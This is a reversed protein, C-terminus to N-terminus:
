RSRQQRAVAALYRVAAIVDAKTGAPAGSLGPTWHDDPLLACDALAAKEDGLRAHCDARRLPGFGDRWSASDAAEARDYDKIAAAHQGLDRLLDGRAEFAPKDPKLEVVRNLDALALDSRGLKIWANHRSYYGDSDDPNERIFQEALAFYEQPNTRLLGFKRAMDETTLKSM